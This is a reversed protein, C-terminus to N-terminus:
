QISNSFLNRGREEQLVVLSGEANVHHYACFSLTLFQYRMALLGHGIGAIKEMRAHFDVEATCHSMHCQSDRRRVIILLPHHANFQSVVIPQAKPLNGAFDSSIRIKETPFSWTKRLFLHHKGRCFIINEEPFSSLDFGAMPQIRRLRRLRREQKKSFSMFSLPSARM